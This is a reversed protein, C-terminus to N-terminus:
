GPNSVVAQRRLVAVKRKDGWVQQPVDGFHEFTHQHCALFHEVTEALTLELYMKRSYALVMIFFSLAGMPM